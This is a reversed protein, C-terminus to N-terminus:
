RDKIQRILKGNKWKQKYDIRKGNLKPNNKAHLMFEGYGKYDKDDTQKLTHKNDDEWNGRFVDGNAFTYKGYGHRKNAKWTGDYVDGNAYYFKGEGEYQNNLFYGDYKTNNASTFTGKGTKQDSVWTGKYKSGDIYTIEGQGNFTNNSISGKYHTGDRFVIDVTGNFRTKDFNFPYTNVGTIKRNWNKGKIHKIENTAKIRVYVVSNPVLENGDFEGQIVDGNVYTYIGYGNYRNNSFLGKYTDGNIATYEGNGEIVGDIFDGRYTTGDPFIIENKEGDYLGNRLQGKYVTGNDYVYKVDAMYSIHSTLKPEVTHPKNNILDIANSFSDWHVDAGFMSALKRVPLYSTGDIVIIEDFVRMGDLNVNINTIYAKLFGEEAFGINATFVLIILLLIGIRKKM